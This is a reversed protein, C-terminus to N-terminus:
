AAVGCGKAILLAAKCIMNEADDLSKFEMQSLPVHVYRGPTYEKFVLNGWAPGFKKRYAAEEAQSATLRKWEIQQCAVECEGQSKWFGLIEPPFEDPDTADIECLAWCNFNFKV